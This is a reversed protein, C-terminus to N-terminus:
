APSRARQSATAELPRGRALFPSGAAAGPGATEAEVWTAAGPLRAHPDMPRPRPQGAAGRM